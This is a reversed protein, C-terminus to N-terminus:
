KNWNNNVIVGLARIISSKGSNSLGIILNFHESFHM